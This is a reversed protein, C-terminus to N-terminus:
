LDVLPTPGAALDTSDTEWKNAGPKLGTTERGVVVEAAEAAEPRAFFGNFRSTRKRRVLVPSFGPALSVATTFSSHM